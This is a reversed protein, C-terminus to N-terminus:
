ILAIYETHTFYLSRRVPETYIHFLRCEIYM